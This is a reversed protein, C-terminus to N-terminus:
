ECFKPIWTTGDPDGFHGGGLSWVSSNGVDQVPHGSETGCWTTPNRPTGVAQPQLEVMLEGLGGLGSDVWIETLNGYNSWLETVQKKAIASYEADTFNHQGPLVKKTCSNTGSFSHCLYFSKMISYYFGYGVGAANASDVFQQLVDHQIAAGKAGVNYGDAARGPILPQSNDATTHTHPPPPASLPLRRPAKGRDAM